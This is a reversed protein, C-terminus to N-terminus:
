ERSASSSGISDVILTKIVVPDGQRSVEKMVKGVLAMVPRDNGGKIKEVIDANEELVKKVATQIDESITVSTTLGLDEAIQSPMREDGDIITWAIMKGNAATVQDNDLMELLEVLKKHGFKNTIADEFDVGKKECNGQIHVYVWNFVMKPDIQLTWILRTFLEISWTHKFIQKVDAVDM